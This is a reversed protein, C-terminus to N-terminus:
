NIRLYNSISGVIDDVKKEVILIKTTDGTEFAAAFGEAYETAISGVGMAFAFAMLGLILNTFFSSFM